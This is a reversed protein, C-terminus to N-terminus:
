LRIPRWMFGARLFLPTQDHRGAELTSDIIMQRCEARDFPVVRGTTLCLDFIRRQFGQQAESFHEEIPNLFCTCPATFTVALNAEALVDHIAVDIKHFSANDLCIFRRVGDRPVIAAIQILFANFSTINVPEDLLEFVLLGHSTLASIMYFPKMSLARHVPCFIPGPPDDKSVIVNRTTLNGPVWPKEDVSIVNDLHMGFFAREWLVQPIEELICDAGGTKRTRIKTFAKTLKNFYSQSIKGGGERIFHALLRTRPVAPRQHGRYFNRVQLQIWRQGARWKRWQGKVKAKGM